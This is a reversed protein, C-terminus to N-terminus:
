INLPFVFLFHYDNEPLFYLNLTINEILFVNILLADADIDGVHHSLIQCDGSCGHSLAMLCIEYLCPSSRNIEVDTNFSKVSIKM